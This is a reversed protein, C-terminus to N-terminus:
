GAERAAEFDGRLSPLKSIAKLWSAFRFGKESERAFPESVGAACDALLGRSGAATFIPEDCGTLAFDSDEIPL